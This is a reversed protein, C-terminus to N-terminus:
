KLKILSGTLTLRFNNQNVFIKSNDVFWGLILMALSTKGDFVFVTVRDM